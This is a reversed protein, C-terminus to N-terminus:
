SILSSLYGIPSNVKQYNAYMMELGSEIHNRVIINFFNNDSAKDQVYCSIAKFYIEDPGLITTKNFEYGDSDTKIEDSVPSGSSLSVSLAIRCVVNRKLNLRTSIYNLQDSSKSSLKLKDAMIDGSIGPCM